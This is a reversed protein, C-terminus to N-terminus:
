WIVGLRSAMHKFIKGLQVSTVQFRKPLSINLNLLYIFFIFLISSDMCIWYLKLHCEWIPLIRDQHINLVRAQYWGNKNWIQFPLLLTLYNNIVLLLAADLCFRDKRNRVYHSEFWGAWSSQYIKWYGYLLPASWVISIHLSTHARTTRLCGFVSKRADLDIYYWDKFM